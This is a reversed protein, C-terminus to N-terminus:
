IGGSKHETWALIQEVSKSGTAAQRVIGQPDILLVSPLTRVRYLQQVTHLSDYGVGVAVKGWRAALQQRDGVGVVVVPLREAAQQLSPYAAQCAGCASDTFFLLWDGAGPASHLSVPEGTVGEIEFPPAPQGLLHALPKPRFGPPAGTELRVGLGICLALLVGVVGSLPLVLPNLPDGSTAM